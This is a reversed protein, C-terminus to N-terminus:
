VVYTVRYIGHDALAVDGLAGVRGGTHLIGGGAAYDQPYLM